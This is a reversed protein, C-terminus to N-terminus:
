VLFQRIDDLGWINFGLQWRGYTGGKQSRDHTNLIAPDNERLTNACPINLCAFCVVAIIHVTM